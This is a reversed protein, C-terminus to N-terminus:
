KGDDGQGCQRQRDSHTGENEREDLSHQQFRQRIALRSLQYAHEVAARTVWQKRDTGTDVFLVLAGAPRQLANGKVRLAVQLQRVAFTRLAEASDTHGRIEKRRETNRRHESSVELFRFSTTDRSYHNEAMRQPCAFKLTVYSDDTLRNAQVALGPRYYAHKWRSKLM